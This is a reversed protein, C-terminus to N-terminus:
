AVLAEFFHVPTLELDQITIEHEYITLQRPQCFNSRAFIIISKENRLDKLFGQKAQAVEQELDFPGFYYICFPKLTGVELWWSLDPTTTTSLCLSM